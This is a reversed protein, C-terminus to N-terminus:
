KGNLTAKGSYDTLRFNNFKQITKTTITASSNPVDEYSIDEIATLVFAGRSDRTANIVSESIVRGADNLTTVSQIVKKTMDFLCITNNSVLRVSGNKMDSIVQVPKGQDDTMAKGTTVANLIADYNQQSSMNAIGQISALSLVDGQNPQSEIVQGNADYTTMTRNDIRVKSVKVINPEEFGKKSLDQASESFNITMDIEGADSLNFQLNYSEANSMENIGEYCTGATNQYKKTTVQEVQYSMELAPSGTMHSFASDKKFAFLTVAVSMLLAPVAAWKWNKFTKYM